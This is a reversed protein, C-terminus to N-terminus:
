LSKGKFTTYGLLHAEEKHRPKYEIKHGINNAFGTVNPCIINQKNRALKLYDLLLKHIFKQNNDVIQIYRSLNSRMMRPLYVYPDSYTANILKVPGQISSIMQKMMANTSLVIVHDNREAREMLVRREEIPTEGSWMISEKEGLRELEIQIDKMERLFSCIVITFGYLKEHLSYKAINSIREQKKSLEIMQNHHKNFLPILPNVGAMSAAAVSCGSHLIVRNECGFKFHIYPSYQFDRPENNGPTANNATTDM